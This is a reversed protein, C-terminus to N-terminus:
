EKGRKRDNLIREKRGEKTERKSYFSFNGRHKVLYWVTFVYRTSSSWAIFVYQPLPPISRYMRLRPVLHLHTTLKV